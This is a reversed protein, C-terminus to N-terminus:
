VTTKKTGARVIQLYTYAVTFFMAAFTGGLIWKSTDPFFGWVGIMAGVIVGVSGTGTGLADLYLPLDTGVMLGIGVGAIMMGLIGFGISPIGLPGEAAFTLTGTFGAGFIAEVINAAGSGLAGFIDSLVNFPVVVLDGISAIINVAQDGIAGIVKQFQGTISKWVYNLPEAISDIVGGVIEQPNPLAFTAIGGFFAAMSAGVFEKNEQLKDKM